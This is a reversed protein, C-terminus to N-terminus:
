HEQACSQKGADPELLQVGVLCTGVVDKRGCCVKGHSLETQTCAAPKM